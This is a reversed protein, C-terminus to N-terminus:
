EYWKIIVKGIFAITVVIIAVGMTTVMWTVMVGITPIITEEMLKKFQEKM